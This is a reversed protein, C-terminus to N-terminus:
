SLRVVLPAEGRAIARSQSHRWPPEKRAEPGVRPTGHPPPNGELRAYEAALNRDAALAREMEIMGAADLEGDLAAHLMFSRDERDSAGIVGDEGTQRDGVDASGSFYRKSLGSGVFLIPQCGMRSVCAEIDAAPELFVHGLRYGVAMIAISGNKM